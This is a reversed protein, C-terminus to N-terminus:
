KHLMESNDFGVLFGGHQFDRTRERSYTPQGNIKGWQKRVVKKLVLLAVFFNTESTLLKINYQSELWYSFYVYRVLLWCTFLVDSFMYCDEVVLLLVHYLIEFGDYLGLFFVLQM